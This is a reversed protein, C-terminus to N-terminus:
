AAVAEPKPEEAKAKPTATFSFVDNEIGIKLEMDTMRGLIGTYFPQIGRADVGEEPAGSLLGEAGSPL